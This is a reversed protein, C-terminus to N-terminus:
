AKSYETNWSTKKIEGSSKVPPNNNTILESKQRRTLQKNENNISSMENGKFM